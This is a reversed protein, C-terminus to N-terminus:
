EITVKASGTSIVGFDGPVNTPFVPVTGPASLVPGPAANLIGAVNVAFATMQTLFTTMQVDATTKDTVRAAGLVSNRGVKILPGEVVTSTLDTPQPIPQTNPRLGVQFESDSLQHTLALVPDAPVGTNKWAALSRDHVHLTGTTGPLIPVSVYSTPTGFTSVPIDTLTIPRLTAQANPPIGKIKVINLPIQDASIVKVTQLFDCTCSVKQTAPNYTVVTAPVHTRIRLQLGRLAARIVEEISAEDTVDYNGTLNTRATM